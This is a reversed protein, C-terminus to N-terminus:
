TISKNKAALAELRAAVEDLRREHEQLISILLELVDVQETRMAWVLVVFM